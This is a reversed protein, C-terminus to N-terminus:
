FRLLYDVAKELQSDKGNLLDLQKQEIEIDPKIGRNEINLGNLYELKYIPIVLAINNDLMFGSGWLMQGPTNTGIIKGLKFQQVIGAMNEAASISMEDILVVLKGQYATGTTEIFDENKEYRNIYTGYMIKKSVFRSLLLKMGEISGGDNGRLDIILGKSHFVKNFGNMIPELNSPQFANFSLYAIDKSLFYSTSQLYAIPMGDSLLIGNQRATRLLSRSHLQNNEDSYKIIVNTGAQGYIFRLVEITLHFKKNRKNHPPKLKVLNRIDNISYGDISKITYGPKIKAKHASSDKSVKTIVIQDDLIRIDIGTEGDMFLYPSLSNKIHDIPGIGSHSSNLEFIMTNLLKFFSINDTTNSILPKYKIYNNKWDIGNFHQDYFEENVTNWVQEFIIIKESKSLAQEQSQCSLLFYNSFVIYLLIVKKIICQKKLFEISSLM